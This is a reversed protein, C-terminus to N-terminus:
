LGIMSRAPTPIIGFIEKMGIASHSIADLLVALINIQIERCIFETALYFHKSMTKRNIYIFFALFFLIFAPGIRYFAGHYAFRFLPIAPLSFLRYHCFISLCPIM